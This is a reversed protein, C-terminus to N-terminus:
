GTTTIYHLFILLNNNKEHTQGFAATDATIYTVFVVIISHRRITYLVIGQINYKLINM